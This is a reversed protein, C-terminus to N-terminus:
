LGKRKLRNVHTRYVEVPNASGWGRLGNTQNVADAHNWTYNDKLVKGLHSSCRGVLGDNQDGFLLGAAALGYDASDFFNTFSRNGSISYYRIGNVKHKGRGCWEKPMAQPHVSAFSMAGKSTLTNIVGNGDQPDDPDTWYGVLTFGISVLSVVIPPVSSNGAIADAFGSGHVPSNVTTVSAVIDPRVSAVYRIDFGGQSHGILNFKEYGYIAQLKLLFSLLQEGRVTSSNVASTDPHFVVAGSRSLGSTIGYWDDTSPTTSESGSGTLGHSMIVPYKTKTYNSNGAHVPNLALLTLLSFVILSSHYKRPNSHNIHM